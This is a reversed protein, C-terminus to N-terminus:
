LVKATAKYFELVAEKSKELVTCVQSNTDLMGYFENKQIARPDADLEKQITLDVAILQYNYKFYQYDLLCGTTYDNGKGTTIKRIEDYKRIKDNIPQNYFNRGDVLVNYNTINVRPLFYKRNSNTQVKNPGGTNNFALVLLRNVQRISSLSQTSYM